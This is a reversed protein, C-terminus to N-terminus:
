KSLAKYYAEIEERYGPLFREVMRSQMQDRVRDPLNGWASRQLATPDNLDVVADKRQMSGSSSPSDQHSANEGSSDSGPRNSKHSQVKSREGENSPNSDQGAPGDARHALDSQSQSASEPSTGNPTHADAMENSRSTAGSASNSASGQPSKKELEGILQDLQAVIDQQLNQTQDVPTQKRLWDAATSMGRKVENLPNNAGIDEGEIDRSADRAAPSIPLSNQDDPVEDAAVKRRESGAAAPNKSKAPAARAKSADPADPTAAPENLLDLLGETLDRKPPTPSQSVTTSGNADQAFTMKKYGPPDAQLAPFPLPLSVGFLLIGCSKKFTRRTISLM